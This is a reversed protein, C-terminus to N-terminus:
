RDEGFFLTMAKTRRQAVPLLTETIRRLFPDESISATLHELTGRNAPVLSAEAFDALSDCLAIAKLLSRYTAGPYDRHNHHYYCVVQFIRPLGWRQAALVGLDCHTQNFHARELAPLDQGETGSQRYVELYARDLRLAMLLIGLDHLLAAAFLELDTSGEVNPPQVLRYVDPLLNAM